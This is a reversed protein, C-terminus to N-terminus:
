ALGMNNKIIFDKTYLYIDTKKIFKVLENSDVSYGNVAGNYKKSQIFQKDIIKLDSYKKLYNVLTMQSIRFHPFKVMLENEIDNFSGYKSGLVKRRQFQTNDLYLLFFYETKELNM